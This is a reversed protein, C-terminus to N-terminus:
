GWSSAHCADGVSLMAGIHLDEELLGAVTLNEGFHGYNLTRGLEAQWESYHESPYCYVAKDAGGHVRLDAQGDGDINLKRVMVPGNVRQKNIGSLVSEDGARLESPM